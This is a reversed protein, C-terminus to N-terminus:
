LRALSMVESVIRAMFSMVDSVIRAMSSMVDRVIRAVSMVDIVIKAFRRQQVTGAMIM